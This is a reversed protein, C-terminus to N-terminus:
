VRSTKRLFSATPKMLRSEVSPKPATGIDRPALKSPRRKKKLGKAVGGEEDGSGIDSGSGRTPSSYRQPSASYQMRAVAPHQREPQQHKNLSSSTPQSYGRATPPTHSSYSVFSVGDAPQSSTSSTERRPLPSGKRPQSTSLVFPSCPLKREGPSKAGEEKSRRLNPNIIEKYTSSTSPSARNPNICQVGNTKTSAAQQQTTDGNMSRLQPRPSDQTQPATDVSHSRNPPALIPIDSAVARTSPPRPRTHDAFQRVPQQVSTERAGQAQWQRDMKLREQEQMLQQRYMAQKEQLSQEQSAKEQLAKEHQAKEQLAKEHLAKEQKAKELKAKEQQEQAARDHLAKEQMAKQQQAFQQQMRQKILEQQKQQSNLQEQLHQQQHAGVEQPRHHERKPPDQRQLQPPIDDFHTVLPHPNPPGAKALIPRAMARGKESDAFTSKPQVPVTTTSPVDTPAKTDFFLIRRKKKSALNKAEHDMVAKRLDANQEANFALSNFYTNKLVWQENDLPLRGTDVGPSFIDMELEHRKAYTKLQRIFYPKIAMDPHASAMFNLTNTLSWGFKLLLYAAVVACCRSVGERSHVLVCEGKELGKEIFQYIQAANRDEGDFLTTAASDRWPFSLYNVGAQQYLNPTETAATNIIHSVKNLFLFEDDQASIDNGVFIGDKIRVALLAAM